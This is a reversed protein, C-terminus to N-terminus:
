PEVIRRAGGAARSATIADLVCLDRYAEEGTEGPSPREGRVFAVVDRVARPIAAGMTSAIAREGTAERLETFGPYHAYEEVTAVTIRDGNEVIRVRGDTGLIDIEFLSYRYGYRDAGLMAATAGNELYLAVDISPDGPVSAVHSDDLAQVAVIEGTLFRITDVVTCGVHYLGKVHVATVAAVRGIGGARVLAAARRHGEDWRRQNNVVITTSQAQARDLLRRAARRNMALPKEAFIVRPRRRALVAEIATEHLADPICISVIDPEHKDLLEDWSPYVAPVSWFRAFEERRVPDPDAAAVIEVEEMLQFAGAHSYCGADKKLEDYRGAINGCGIIAARVTGTPAAMEPFTLRRCSSATPM